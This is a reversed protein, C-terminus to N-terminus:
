LKRQTLYEILSMQLTFHPVIRMLSISFGRYYRLPNWGLKWTETSAIHRRKIFDLGHLLISSITASTAAAGLTSPIYHGCMDYLPFYLMNGCIAKIMTKSYGRYMSTLISSKNAHIFKNLFHTKESVGTTVNIGNLMQLNLKFFDFPQTILSSCFGSLAGNRMNILIEKKTSGSQKTFFRYLYYKSCTSLMQSSVAWFGGSYFGRWGREKSILSFASRISKLSSNNQYVTQVTCIPLVAFEACGGAVASAWLDRTSM